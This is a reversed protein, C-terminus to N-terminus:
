ESLLWDGRRAIVERWRARYAKLAGRDLATVVNLEPGPLRHHELLALAAGGLTAGMEERCIFMRSDRLAALARCFMVNKSAPGEIIVEARADILDLSVDAILALYLSALLPRLRERGSSLGVTEGTQGPFPGGADVFAPLALVEAQLLQMVDRVSYNSFQMDACLIEFERGGMFRACPVPRGFVDINALCDRQQDLKETTGGPAMAVFWTGTSLVARPQSAAHNDHNGCLYFLAANTDHVGVHVTCDPALGTRGALEATVAGVVKWAPVLGPLKSSWGRSVCLTSPRNNEPQWLDSHCGLSTVECVAKGSFRYAWYQPYLLIRHVRRFREPDLRLQWYLQRGLNLGLPLAPSLTESFDPRLAEYEDYIAGPISAEYDMVPMVLGGEEDVLAAAAGHTVPFLHEISFTRSYGALIECYWDFIAEVDLAPYDPADPLSPTATVSNELLQGNGDVLSLKTHSKGVDLIACVPTM